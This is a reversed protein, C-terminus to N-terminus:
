MVTLRATRRKSAIRSSDSVQGRSSHQQFTLGSGGLHLHPQICVALGDPQGLPLHSVQEVLVHARDVFMKLVDKGFALQLALCSDPIEPYNPLFAVALYGSRNLVVVQVDNDRHAVPDLRMLTGAEALPGGANQAFVQGPAPGQAALAELFVSAFQLRGQQQHALGRLARFQVRATTTAQHIDGAAVGLGKQQQLAVVLAQKGLWTCM